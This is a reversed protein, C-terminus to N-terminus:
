VKKAANNKAKYMAFAQSKKSAPNAKGMGNGAKPKISTKVKKNPLKLGSGTAM